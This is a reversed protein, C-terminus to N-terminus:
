FAGAEPIPRNRHSHRGRLRCGVMVNVLGLASGRPLFRSPNFLSLTAPKRAAGDKHCGSM